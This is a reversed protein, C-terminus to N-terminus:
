IFSTRLSCIFSLIFSHVSSRIISCIFSPVFLWLFSRLFSHVFPHIFSHIFSPFFSHVSSRIFSPIFSCYKRINCLAPDTTGETATTYDDRCKTCPAESEIEKYFGVSCNVCMDNMPGGTEMGAPCRVVWYVDNFYPGNVRLTQWQTFLSLFVIM